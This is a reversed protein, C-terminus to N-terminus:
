GASSPSTPARAPDARLHRGAREHPHVAPRRPRDACRAGQGRDGVPVRGPPERGHELGDPRHLRQQGPGTPLHDRWRSRLQDRSGPGHLQTMDPSPERDPHCRARHVAEQPPLEGRQRPRRRRPQRVGAHPEAAFRQRREDEWGDDRAAIVRDAIMDMATDLDLDEWDTGGPRRYRVTLERSPGTVMERTSSGRPCLRGRSIPSDPDGEIHTIEGDQVFIRQGCGVACFPCISPSSRTPRTPVPRSRTPPPPAPPQESPPATTVPSSDCSAAVSRPRARRAPVPPPPRPTGDRDVRSTTTAPRLTVPCRGVPRRAARSRAARSRAARSRGVRCRSVPPVPRTAGCDSRRACSRRPADCGRRQLPPARRHRVRLEAPGVDPCGRAAPGRARDAWRRRHVRRLGVPERLDAAGRPRWRDRHARVLSLTALAQARRNRRATAVIEIWVWM